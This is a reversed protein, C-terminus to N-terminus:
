TRLVVTSSSYRIKYKSTVVMYEVVIEWDVCKEENDAHFIEATVHVRLHLGQALHKFCGHTRTLCKHTNNFVTHSLHTVYLMYNFWYIKISAMRSENQQWRPVYREGLVHFASGVLEVHGM